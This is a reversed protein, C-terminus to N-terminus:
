GNTPEGSESEQSKQQHEAGLAEHPRMYNHFIQYGTLIPSNDTKLNRTSRKVTVFKETSGNWRTITTHVRKLTIKRIHVTNDVQKNTRYEQLWADHYAPLGDTVLVHPKKGALEKAM